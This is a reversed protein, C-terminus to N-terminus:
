GREKMIKEALEFDIENDIDVSSQQEMILAKVNGEYWDYDLEKFKWWRAMRVAGTVRYYIPLEQRNKKRIEKPIFNEMSLDEPLTNCWLPMVEAETVSIVGDITKDAEFMEVARDIDAGCILPSTIQIMSFLDFSEKKDEFYAMSSRITEVIASNDDALEKNRLFPVEAGCKKAIDAYKESDTNVMIYCEHTHYCCSERIAQIAYYMLPKGNLDKINKDKIGKSGSRAPLMFLIKM